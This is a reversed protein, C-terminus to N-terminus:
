TTNYADYYLSRHHVRDKLGSLLDFVRRCLIVYYAVRDQALTLILFSFLSIYVVGANKTVSILDNKIVIIIEIITSM